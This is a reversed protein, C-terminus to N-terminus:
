VQTNHLQISMDMFEPIFEKLSPVSRIIIFMLQFIDPCMIVEDHIATVIKHYLNEISSRM